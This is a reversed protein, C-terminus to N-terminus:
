QTRKQKYKRKTSEGGRIHKEKYNNNLISVVNKYLIKDIYILRTHIDSHLTSKSINFKKATERITSKNLILYLACKKTRENIYNM